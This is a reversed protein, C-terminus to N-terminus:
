VLPHIHIQSFSEEGRSEEIIIYRGILQKKRVLAGERMKHPCPRQAMSTIMYNGLVGDGNLSREPSPGIVHCRRTGRGFPGEVNRCLTVRVSDEKLVDNEGSIRGLAAFQVLCRRETCLISPAFRWTLM